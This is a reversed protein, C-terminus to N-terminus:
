YKQLKKKEGHIILEVSLYGAMGLALCASIVALKAYVPIFNAYTYAIVFGVSEWLRYNSFAATDSKNFLVGYLAAVFIDMKNMNM